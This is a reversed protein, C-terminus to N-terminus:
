LCIMTFIAEIASVFPTANGPLLIYASSAMYSHRVFPDLGVQYARLSAVLRSIGFTPAASRAAGVPRSNIARGTGPAAGALRDNLSVTAHERRM